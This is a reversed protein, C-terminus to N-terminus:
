YLYIYIETTLDWKVHKIHIKSTKMMSTVWNNYGHEKSEVAHSKTSM